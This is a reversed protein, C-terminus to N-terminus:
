TCDPSARSPSAGGLWVRMTALLILLIWLTAAAAFVYLIAAALGLLIMTAFLLAFFDRSMVVTFFRVIGPALRRAGHGGFRHKLFDFSVPGGDRRIRWSLILLGAAFLAFGWGGIWAHHAGRSLTLNITLGLIFLLNTVMDVASDLAAGRPSAQFTARAIEGDVGDIVSAAQFLIGGLILGAASGTVLCAFMALAIAATVATMQTPRVGGIRLALLSIRQSLPRNLWRSVPGDGAKGTRRVIEWDAGPASLPLARGPDVQMAKGAPTALDGGGAAKKAVIRGRARLCDADSGLFDRLAGGEILHDGDLSLLAGADRHALAEDLADATLLRVSMAGKLRAIDAQMAADLIPDAGIVLWAESFGAEDLGRLVRGAASVGAVRREAEARGAFHVLALLGPFPARASVSIESKM